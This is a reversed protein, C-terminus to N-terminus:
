NFKDNLRDTSSTRRVDLFGRERLVLSPIVTPKFTYDAYMLKQPLGQSQEIYVANNLTGAFLLCDWNKVEIYWVNVTDAKQGNRHTRGIMQEVDSPSWQLVVNNHFHQLNKGTGHSSISAVVVKKANKPDEIRNDGAPCYLVDWGQESLLETAWIALEEHYVWVICGQKYLKEKEIIDIAVNIKFPDVRHTRSDRQIREEFDHDDRKKLIAQLATGNFKEDGRYLASEIIGFTDYYLDNNEEIFNNVEKKYMKDLVHWDSSRQIIDEATGESVRIRKALVNAEPWILENYFGCHLEYLWAYKEFGTEIDDGNPSLACETVGEILEHLRSDIGFNSDVKNLELRAEIPTAGSMCGPASIFRHKHANRLGIIDDTFKENIGLLEKNQEAWQIIPYITKVSDLVALPFESWYSGKTTKASIAQDWQNAINECMPLPMGEGLGLKVLHHYNMISDKVPSGTMGVFQRREGTATVRTNALETFRRTRAATFNALHQFEDAIILEPDIAKFLDVFDKGQMQHYTIPYVGRRNSRATRMRQKPSGGMIPNIPVNHGIWKRGFKYDSNLVQNTLSSITVYMIKKIGLENYAYHEILRSLLSKGCGVGITFVGGHVGIHDVSNVYEFLGWVQEPKLREGQEYIEQTLMEKSVQEIEHETPELYIPLKCIRKLEKAYPSNPNLEDLKKM